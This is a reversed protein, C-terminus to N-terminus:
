LNVNVGAIVVKKPRKPLANSRIRIGNHPYRPRIGYRIGFPHGFLRAKIETQGRLSLPFIGCSAPALLFFIGTALIHVDYCPVAVVAVARGM